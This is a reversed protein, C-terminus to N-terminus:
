GNPLHCSRFQLCHLFPPPYPTQFTSLLLHHLSELLRSTFVCHEAPPSHLTYFTTIASPIELSKSVRGLPPPPVPATHAERWACRRDISVLPPCRPADRPCRQPVKLCWPMAPHWRAGSLIVRYGCGPYQLVLYPVLTLPGSPIM